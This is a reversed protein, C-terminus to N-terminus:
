YDWPTKIYQKKKGFAIAWSEVAWLALEENFVM